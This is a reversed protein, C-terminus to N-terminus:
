ERRRGSLRPRCSSHSTRGAVALIRFCSWYPVLMRDLGIAHKAPYTTRKWCLPCAEAIEEQSFRLPKLSGARLDSIGRTASQAGKTIETAPSFAVGLFPRRAGEAKPARNLAYYITASPAASLTMQTTLYGGGENMLASFPVLHLPGDPVVILSSVNPGAVPQVLRKYLEEASSKTDSSSRIATVFSRALASIQSRPPLNHIKLGTRSIEIAYSGKEELVYEVLSERPQLQTQLEAVSDPRKRVLGMEKRQKAYEAPSIQIYAQDLQDLVRRTQAATMRDHM